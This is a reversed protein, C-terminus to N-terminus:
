ENAGFGYSSFLEIGGAALRELVFREHPPM